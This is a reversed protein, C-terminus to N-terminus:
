MLKMTTLYVQIGAHTFDVKPHTAKCSLIKFKGGERREGRREGTIIIFIIIVSNKHKNILFFVM